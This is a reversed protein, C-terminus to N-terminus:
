SHIEIRPDQSRCLNQFNSFLIFPFLPSKSLTGRVDQLGNEDLPFGDEDFPGSMQTPGLNHLACVPIRFIKQYYEAPCNDENIKEQTLTAERNSQDTKPALGDSNEEQNVCSEGSRARIKNLSQYGNTCLDPNDAFLLSDSFGDNFSLFTDKISPNTNEIENEFFTDTNWNIGDTDLEGLPQDFTFDTQAISPTGPTCILILAFRHFRM